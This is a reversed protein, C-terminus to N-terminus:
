RPQEPPLRLGLPVVLREVGDFAAEVALALAAAPLAGELLLGTDAMGMIVAYLSRCNDNFIVICLVIGIM